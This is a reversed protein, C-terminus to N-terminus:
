MKSSETQKGLDNPTEHSEYRCDEREGANKYAAAADEVVLRGIRIRSRFLISGERSLETSGDDTRACHGALAEVAMIAPDQIFQQEPDNRRACLDRDPL